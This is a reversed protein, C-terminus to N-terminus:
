ARALRWIGSRPHASVGQHNSCDGEQSYSMRPVIAPGGKHITNSVPAKSLIHGLRIDDIKDCAVQGSEEMGDEANFVRWQAPVNGAGPKNSGVTDEVKTVPRVIITADGSPDEPLM